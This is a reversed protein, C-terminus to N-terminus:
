MTPFLWMVLSSLMLVSLRYKRKEETETIVKFKLNDSTFEDGVEAMMPMTMLWAMASFIYKLKRM